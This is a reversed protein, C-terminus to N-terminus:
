LAVEPELDDLPSVADDWDRLAEARAVPYWHHDPRIWADVDDGNDSVLARQVHSVGPVVGARRLQAPDLRRRVAHTPTRYCVDVGALGDAIKTRYVADGALKGAVVAKSRTAAADTDFLLRAQARLRGALVNLWSLREDQYDLLAQPDGDDLYRLVRWGLAEADMLSTNLAQGGIPIFPHAADGCLVVRGEVLRRAVKTDDSFTRLWSPDAPL